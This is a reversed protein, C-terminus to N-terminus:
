LIAMETIIEGHYEEVLDVLQEWHILVSAYHEWYDPGEEEVRRWGQYAAYDTFTTIVLYRGPHKGALRILSLHKVGPIWRQMELVGSTMLAELERDSAGPKLQWLRISRYENM